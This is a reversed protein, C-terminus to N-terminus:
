MSCRRLASAYDESRAEEKNLDGWGLLPPAGIGVRTCSRQRTRVSGRIEAASYLEGMPTVSQCNKGYAGM